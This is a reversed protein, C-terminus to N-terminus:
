SGSTGPEFGPRPVCYLSLSGPLGRAESSVLERDRPRPTRTAREGRHFTRVRRHLRDRFGAATALGHPDVGRGEELALLTARNESSGSLSCTPPEFGGEGVM